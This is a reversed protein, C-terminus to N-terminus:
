ILDWEEWDTASLDGLTIKYIEMYEDGQEEQEDSCLGLIKDKYWPDKHQIFRIFVDERWSYRRVFRGNILLQIIEQFTM